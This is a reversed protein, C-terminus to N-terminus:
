ISLRNALFSSFNYVSTPRTSYFYYSYHYAHDCPWVTTHVTVRYHSWHQLPLADLWHSFAFKGKECCGCVKVSLWWINCVHNHGGYRGMFWMQDLDGLPNSRRMYGFNGSLKKDRTLMSVRSISIVFRDTQGDTQGDTRGDTRLTGTDSSFPKVYRWLKKVIRYGLWELKVLM